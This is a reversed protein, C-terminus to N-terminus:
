TDTTRPRDRGVTRGRLVAIWSNPRLQGVSSSAALDLELPVMVAQQFLQLTPYIRAHALVEGAM